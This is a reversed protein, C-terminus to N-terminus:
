RLLRVGQYFPVIDLLGADAKESAYKVINRLRTRNIRNQPKSGDSDEFIRHFAINLWKPSGQMLLNDILEESTPKQNDNLWCAVNYSDINEKNTLREPESNISWGVGRAGEYIGRAMAKVRIMDTESWDGNALDGGGYPYAITYVPQEIINELFIKGQVMDEYIEENSSHTYSIHNKGHSAIEQGSQAMEKMMEGTLLIPNILRDEVGIVFFTGRIGFEKFIEFVIEYDSRYGDDFSFTLIPKSLASSGLSIDSATINGGM